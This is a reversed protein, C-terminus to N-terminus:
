TFSGFEVVTFRNEALILSLSTETGNLHWLPFDPAAEGLPPSGAFNMLSAVNEETFSGYNYAAITDTTFM